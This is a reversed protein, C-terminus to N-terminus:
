SKNKKFDDVADVAAKVAKYFGENEYMATALLLSISSSKGQIHSGHWGKAKGGRCLLLVADGKDTEVIENLSGAIEKIKEKNM